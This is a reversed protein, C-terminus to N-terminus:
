RSWFKEVKETDRGKLILLFYLRDGWSGRIIFLYVKSRLVIIVLTENIVRKEM